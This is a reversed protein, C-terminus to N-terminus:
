LTLYTANKGVKPPLESVQKVEKLAALDVMLEVIDNVRPGGKHELLASSAIVSQNLSDEKKGPTANTGAVETIDIDSEEGESMLPQIAQTNTLPGM